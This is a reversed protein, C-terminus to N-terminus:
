RRIVHFAYGALDQGADTNGASVRVVYDGEQLLRSPLAVAIEKNRDYTPQGKVNGRSWVSRGDPTTVSVNYHPHPDRGIIMHLSVSSAHAPIVLNGMQSSGRSLGRGLTFSITNRDYAPSQVIQRIASDRQSLDARLSQVQEQLARRDQVAAAEKGQLNELEDALRRNILLLWFMGAIVILFAAAAGFQAGWIRFERSLRWWERRPEPTSLLMANEAAASYSLLSKATQVMERRAPNTLFSREFRQREPASLKDLVYRDVIENELSVLEQFVDGDKLYSDEVEARESASLEGFLYQVMLRKQGAKGIM